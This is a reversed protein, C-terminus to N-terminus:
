QEKRLEVHMWPKWNEDDSSTEWQVKLRNGNEEVDITARENKREFRWTNGENTIHYTDTNGQDDYFRSSFVQKEADYGLIEIGRSVNEGMLAHWQHLLFYGGPLWEYVDTANVEVGDVTRGTTHWKGAFIELQQHGNPTQTTDAM